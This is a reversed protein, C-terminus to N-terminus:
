PGRPGPDESDRESHHPHVEPPGVDAVAQEAGRHLTLFGFKNAKRNSQTATTQFGYRTQNLHPSPITHRVPSINRNIADNEPIQDLVLNTLM